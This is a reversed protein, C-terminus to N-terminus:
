VRRVKGDFFEGVSVVVAGNEAASVKRTRNSEGNRIFRRGSCNMM